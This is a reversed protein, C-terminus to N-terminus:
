FIFFKFFILVAYIYMTIGVLGLPGVIVYNIMIKRWSGKKLKMRDEFFYFLYIFLRRSLKWWFWTVVTFSLFFLLRLLLTEM